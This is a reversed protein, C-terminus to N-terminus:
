FTKRRKLKMRNIRVERENVQSQLKKLQSTLHHNGDSHCDKVANRFVCYKVMQEGRDPIHLCM